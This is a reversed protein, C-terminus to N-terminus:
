PRTPKLVLYSLILYLPGLIDCHRFKSCHNVSHVHKTVLFHIIFVSYLTGCHGYTSGDRAKVTQLMTQVATWTQRYRQRSTDIASCVNEVSVFICYILEAFDFYYYFRFYFKRLFHMMMVFLVLWAERQTPGAHSPMTFNM